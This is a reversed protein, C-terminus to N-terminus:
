LLMPQADRHASSSRASPMGVFVRVINGSALNSGELLLQSRQREKLKEM